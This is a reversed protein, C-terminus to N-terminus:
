ETRQACVPPEGTGSGGSCFGPLAFAARGSSDVGRVSGEQPPLSVVADFPAAGFCRMGLHHFLRSPGVRKRARSCGGRTRLPSSLADPTTIETSSPISMIASIWTGKQH